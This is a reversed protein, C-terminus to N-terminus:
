RSDYYDYTPRSFFVILQPADCTDAIARGIVDGTGASSDELCGGRRFISGPLEEDIQHVQSSASSSEFTDREVVKLGWPHAMAQESNEENLEAQV